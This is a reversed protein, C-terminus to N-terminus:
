LRRSLEQAVDAMSPRGHPQLCARALARLPEADSLAALEELLVGFARVEM